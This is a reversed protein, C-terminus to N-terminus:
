LSVVKALTSLLTKHKVVFPNTTDWVEGALVSCIQRQFDERTEDAYFIAALNGNYWADVYSRFVDIGSRMSEEYEEKWNVEEGNVQRETLQAALLGSHTALTVGSSFVPDLFETSNGCLVYGPGCLQKVGISFGKLHQVDRQFPQGHFRERLVPQAEIFARFDDDNGELVAKSEDDNAVLGISATGDQFPITWVWSNADNLSLIEIYKRREEDVKDDKIHTFKVSRVSQTSPQNLDLLRPLVRGYGSADIIFASEITMTEGSESEYTVTQAGDGVRVDTVTCGFKVEAGNAQAAEILKQDFDARKVQWTHGPSDTHQVSFDFTKWSEGDSFKAGNKRQFDSPNLHKMIGADKLNSMCHPLLSEGIVFRPFHAKELVLVDFGRESLYSSACAGAPGAGIVVIKPNM